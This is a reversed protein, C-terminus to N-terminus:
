GATASRRAHCKTIQRFAPGPGPDRDAPSSLQNLRAEDSFAAQNAIADEWTEPRANVLVPRSTAAAQEVATEMMQLLAANQCERQPAYYHAFEPPEDDWFQDSNLYLTLM